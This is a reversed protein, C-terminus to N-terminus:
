NALLAKVLRVRLDGAQSSVDPTLNALATKYEDAMEAFKSIRGYFDAKASAVILRARRKLDVDSGALEDIRKECDLYANLAAASDDLAEYFRGLLLMGDLKDVGSCGAIFKRLFEEGESRRKGNGFFRATLTALQLTPKDTAALADKLCQEAKDREGIKEYLEVLRG